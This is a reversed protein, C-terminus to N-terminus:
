GAQGRKVIFFRVHNTPDETPPTIYGRPDLREAAVQKSVLYDVILRARQDARQQRTAADGDLVHVQVEVLQISPNGVFTSAIADLTKYSGPALETESTFSIPDLIEIQSDSTVVKGPQKPSSGCAVLLLLAIGALRATM